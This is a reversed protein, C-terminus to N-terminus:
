KKPRIKLAPTGPTETIFQAVVGLENDSLKFYEGTSVDPKFRIVREFLEDPIAERHEDMAERDIKLNIRHEGVLEMGYPLPIKNTGRKPNPFALAFLERRLKFETASAAALAKEAEHWETLKDEFARDAVARAHQEQQRAQLAQSRM